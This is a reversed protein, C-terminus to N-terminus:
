RALASDDVPYRLELLHRLAAPPVDHPYRTRILDAPGLVPESPGDLGCHPGVRFACGHRPVPSPEQRRIPSPSRALRCGGASTACPSLNRHREALYPPVTQRLRALRRHRAFRSAEYLSDLLRYWYSARTSKWASSLPSAATPKVIAGAEHCRGTLSDARGLPAMSAGAMRRQLELLTMAADRGARPLVQRGEPSRRASRRLHPHPRGMRLLTATPGIRKIAHQYHAGSRDIVPHDHTNWSTNKRVKSHGRHPDARRTAPAV